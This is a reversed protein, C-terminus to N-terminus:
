EFVTDMTLGGGQGGDDLSFLQIKKFQIENYLFKFFFSFFNGFLPVPDSCEAAHVAGGKM